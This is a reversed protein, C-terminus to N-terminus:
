NRVRREQSGKKSEEVIRAQPINDPIVIGISLGILIAKLRHRNSSTSSSLDFCDPFATSLADYIGSLHKRVCADTVCMKEAIEQNSYGAVLHRYAEMQRPTLTLTTM